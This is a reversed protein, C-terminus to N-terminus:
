EVVSVHLIEVVFDIFIEPCDFYREKDSWSGSVFKKGQQNVWEKIREIENAPHHSVFAIHSERKEITSAPTQQREIFQLLVPLGSQEVIAFTDGEPRYAVRCGLQEFLALVFDLSGSTIRKACHHLRLDPNM